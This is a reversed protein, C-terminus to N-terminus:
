VPLDIEFVVDDTFFKSLNNIISRDRFAEFSEELLRRNAEQQQMRLKESKSATNIEGGIGDFYSNSNADSGQASSSNILLGSSYMLSLVFSLVFINVKSKM